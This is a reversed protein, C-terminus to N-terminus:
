KYNEIFMDALEPHKVIANIITAVREPEENTFYLVHSNPFGYLTKVFDLSHRDEIEEQETFSYKRAQEAHRRIRNGQTCDMWVFLVDDKILEMNLNELQAPTLVMVDSNDYTYFSIGRHYMYSDIVGDEEIGGMCMYSKMEFINSIDDMTYKLYKPDIYINEPASEINCFERGVRIGNNECCELAEHKGSAHKGVIFIKM